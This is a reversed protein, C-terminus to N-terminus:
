TIFIHFMCKNKPGSAQHRVNVTAFIYISYIKGKSYCMQAPPMDTGIDSPGANVLQRWPGLM